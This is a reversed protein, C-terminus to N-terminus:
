KDVKKVRIFNDDLTIGSFEESLESKLFSRLNTTIEDDIVKSLEYETLERFEPPVEDEPIETKLWVTARYRVEIM